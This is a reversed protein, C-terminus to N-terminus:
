HQIETSKAKKVTEVPDEPAFANPVELKLDQGQKKLEFSYFGVSNFDNSIILKNM